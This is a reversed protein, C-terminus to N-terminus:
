QMSKNFPNYVPFKRPKTNYIQQWIPNETNSVFYTTISHQSYGTSLHCELITSRNNIYRFLGSLTPCKSCTFIPQTNINQLTLWIHFLNQGNIGFILIHLVIHIDHFILHYYSITQSDRLNTSCHSILLAPLSILIAINTTSSHSILVTPAILFWAPIAFNKTTTTLQVIHSIHIYNFRTKNLQHLAFPELHPLKTRFIHHM